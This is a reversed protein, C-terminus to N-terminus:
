VGPREGTDGTDRVRDPHPQPGDYGYFECGYISIYMVDTWDEGTAVRFLSLLAVSHKAYPMILTFDFARM